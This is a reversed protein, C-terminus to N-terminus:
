LQSFQEGYWGGNEKKSNWPTVALCKDLQKIRRLNEMFCYFVSSQRTFNVWFHKKNNSKLHSRNFKPFRSGFGISMLNSQTVHFLDATNGKLNTKSRWICLNQQCLQFILIYIANYFPNLTEPKFLKVPSLSAQQCILGYWVHKSYLNHKSHKWAKKGTRIKMTLSLSLTIPPVQFLKSNNTPFYRTDKFIWFVTLGRQLSKRPTKKQNKNKKHGKTFFCM